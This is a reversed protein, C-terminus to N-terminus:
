TGLIYCHVFPLFFGSDPVQVLSLANIFCFMVFLCRNPWSTIWGIPFLLCLLFPPSHRSHSNSNSQGFFSVRSYHVSVQLIPCCSGKHLFFSASLPAVIIFGSAPVDKTYKLFPLSALTSPSSHCLPLPHWFILDLSYLPCTSDKLYLSWSQAPFSMSQSGQLFIGEPPQEALLTLRCRMEPREWKEIQNGPNIKVVCYLEVSHFTFMKWKMQM